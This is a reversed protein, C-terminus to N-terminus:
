PISNSPPIQSQLKAAQQKLFKPYMDRRRHPIEPNESKSRPQYPADLIQDDSWGLSRRAYAINPPVGAAVARSRLSLPNSKRGTLKSPKYDRPEHTRDMMAPAHSNLGPKGIPINLADSETWGMLKIRQYVTHFHLGLKLCKQRLSNPQIKGTKRRNQAQELPTAWKCNDPSYPGDNNIRELWLGEPVYGMHNFFNQFGNLGTWEHCVTIGLGGYNKYNSLKPNTCRGVMNLYRDMVQKRLRAKARNYLKVCDLGDDSVCLRAEKHYEERERAENPTM